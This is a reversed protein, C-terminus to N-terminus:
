FNKTKNNKKNGQTKLIKQIKILITEDNKIPAFVFFQERLM